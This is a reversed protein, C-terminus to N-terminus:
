GAGTLRENTLYYLNDLKQVQGKQILDDFWIDVLKSTKEESLRNRSHGAMIYVFVRWPDFGDPLGLESYDFDIHLDGVRIELGYGHIRFVEAFPCVDYAARLESHRSAWDLARMDEPTRLKESVLRKARQQDTLFENLILTNMRQPIGRFGYGKRSLELIRCEGDDCLHDNRTQCFCM